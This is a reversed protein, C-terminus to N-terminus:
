AVESDHMRTAAVRLEEARRAHERDREAMLARRESELLSPEPLPKHIVRVKAGMAFYAAAILLAAFFGLVVFPEQSWLLFFADM